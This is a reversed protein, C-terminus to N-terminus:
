AHPVCALGSQELVERDVPQPEVVCRLRRRRSRLERRAPRSSGFPQHRHWADARDDGARHDYSRKIPTPSAPPPRCERVDGRPRRITSSRPQWPPNSVGVQSLRHGLVSYCRPGASRRLGDPKLSGLVAIANQTVRYTGCRPCEVVLGQYRPPSADKADKLCVPCGQGARWHRERLSIRQGM